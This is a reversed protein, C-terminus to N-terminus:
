FYIRSRLFSFAAGFNKASLFVNEKRLRSDWTVHFVKFIWFVFGACYFPPSMKRFLLKRWKRFKIEAKRTEFKKWKHRWCLSDLFVFNQICVSVFLLCFSPTLYVILNIPFSLLICFQIGCVSSQASQIYAPPPSSQFLALFSLLYTAESPLISFYTFTLIFFFIITLLLFSFLLILFVQSLADAACLFNRLLLLDSM